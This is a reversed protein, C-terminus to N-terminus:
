CKFVFITFKLALLPWLVFKGGVDAICAWMEAVQREAKVSLQAAVVRGPDEQVQGSGQEAEIQEEEEVGPEAGDGAVAQRNGRSDHLM